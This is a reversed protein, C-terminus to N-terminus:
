PLDRIFSAYRHMRFVRDFIFVDILDYGSYHAHGVPRRDPTYFFFVLGDKRWRGEWTYGKSHGVNIDLTCTSDERLSLFSMRNDGGTNELWVTRLTMTGPTCGVTFALLLTILFTKM